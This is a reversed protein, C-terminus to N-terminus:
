AAGGMSGIECWTPTHDSAKEKGRADRDIDCALLRDAVAPSLLFHDIRLGNDFRWAAGQYDWFTWAKPRNPHLARFAETLGLNVVSRWAARAEPRCLADMAFAPPDWVDAATPCINFDGTLVFPTEDHLLAEARAKMRAMWRLKYAFKEEGGNGNPLYLGCIRIGGVTGEIWRAHDDADEGPLGRSIDSVPLRSIFAVGNYTKQGHTHVEYGVSQLELAPFDADVCKIEQLLLVDPTNERVWELVNPLRVKISNVNWTVVKM